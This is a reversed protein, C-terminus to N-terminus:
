RLARLHDVARRRVVADGFREDLLQLAEVPRTPAKWAAVLRHADRAKQASVWTVSKLFKPLAEFKDTIQPVM